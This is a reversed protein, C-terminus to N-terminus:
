NRKPFNARNVWCTWFGLKALAPKVDSFIELRLYSKMLEGSTQPPCVLNLSRCAFSLASETVMWSDECQGSLSPLWTYELQAAM